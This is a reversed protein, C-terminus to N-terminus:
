HNIWSLIYFALFMISGGIKIAQTATLGLDEQLQDLFSNDKELVDDNAGTFWWDFGRWKNYIGDFLLWFLFMQMCAACIFVWFHQGPHEITFGVTPAIFSVSRIFATRKHNIGQSRFFRKLHLWLFLALILLFLGAAIITHIM